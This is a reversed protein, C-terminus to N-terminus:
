FDFFRDTSFQKKCDYKGEIIGDMKLYVIERGFIGTIKVKFM